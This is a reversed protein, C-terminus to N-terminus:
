KERMDFTQIISYGGEDIRYTLSDIQSTFINYMVIAAMSNFIGVATNVLAESIGTALASADPAGATSLASFARIMGLVTGFLGVLVGVAVITALIPLNRELMPLELNTAEELESQIALKKQDKDMNSEAAVEEYKKLGAKLVNAVSGKQSDCLDKAGDIDGDALRMRIKKVFVDISGKGTAKILTILREISFVLTMITLTMGIPIVFGGKYVVGLMNGELPDNAPDNGQFNSPDGFIKHFVLEAIVLALVIVLVPFLSKLPSAKKVQVDDGGINSEFGTNETSM